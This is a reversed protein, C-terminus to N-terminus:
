FIGINYWHKWFQIPPPCLLVAPPHLIYNYKLYMNCSNRESGCVIPSFERHLSAM